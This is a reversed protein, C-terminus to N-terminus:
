KNSFTRIEQPLGTDSYVERKSRIKGLGTSNPTNQKWKTKDWFYKKIEEKIEEKVWQNKLQM